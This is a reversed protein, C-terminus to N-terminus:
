ENIGRIKHFERSGNDHCCRAVIEIRVQFWDVDELGREKVDMKINYEWRLRPRCGRCTVLVRYVNINQRYMGCPLLCLDGKYLCQPETCATRGM